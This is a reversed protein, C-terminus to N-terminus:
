LAKVLCNACLSHHKKCITFCQSDKIGCVCCVSNKAEKCLLYISYKLADPMTAWGDIGFRQLWLDIVTYGKNNTQTCWDHAGSEAKTYMFEEPIQKNTNLGTNNIIYLM